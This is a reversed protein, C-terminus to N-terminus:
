MTLIYWAIAHGGRKVIEDRRDAKGHKVKGVASRLEQVGPAGLGNLEEALDALTVEDGVDERCAAYSEQAAARCLNVTLM